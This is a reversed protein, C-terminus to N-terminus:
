DIKVEEIKQPNSQSTSIQQELKTIKRKFQEQMDTIEEEHEDDKDKFTDKM